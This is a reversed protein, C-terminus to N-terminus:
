KLKSVITAFDKSTDKICRMCLKTVAVVVKINNNITPLSKQAEPSATSMAKTNHDITSEVFKKIKDGERWTEASTIMDDIYKKCHAFTYDHKGLSAPYYAVHGRPDFEDGEKLNYRSIQYISNGNEIDDYTIESNMWKLYENISSLKFTKIDDEKLTEIKTTNAIAKLCDRAARAIYTLGMADWTQMEIKLWKEMNFEDGDGSLKEEKLKTLRKNVLTSEKIWNEYFNNFFAGIKKLVGVAKDKIKSVYEGISEQVVDLNVSAAVDIDLPEGNDDELAPFPIGLTRSLENNTNLLDLGERTIGHTNFHSSIFAYNNIVEVCNDYSNLLADLVEESEKSDIAVQVTDQEDDSTITIDIDSSGDLDEQAQHNQDNKLSKLFAAFNSSVSLLKATEHEWYVVREGHNFDICIYDGGPTDMIAIVKEPLQGKLATNMSIINGKDKKDFSLLKRAVKEESGVMFLNNEPYGNNFKNVTDKFTSSFKIGYSSEMEEIGAKVATHDVTKVYKWNM